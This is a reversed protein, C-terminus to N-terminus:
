RELLGLNSGITAAEARNAANLASLTLKVHVKVTQLSIGLVDAIDQNSLGKAIYTLIQTQRNTLSVQATNGKLLSAPPAYQGGALVIQLAGMLLAKSHTKPIFGQAGAELARNIEKPDEVASVFVVSTDPYEKAMLRMMDHGLGDPLNLDLLMLDVEVETLRQRAGALDGAEEITIDQELEEIASVLGTRFLEHDDCILVRM